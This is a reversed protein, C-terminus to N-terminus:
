LTWRGVKAMQILDGVTVPAKGEFERRKALPRRFVDLLTPECRFYKEIQMNNMDIRFANSVELLLEVADDGDVGLDQLLRSQLSLRTVPLGVRRSVLVLMEQEFDRTTM